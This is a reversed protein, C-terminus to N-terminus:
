LGHPNHDCAFIHVNDLVQVLDYQSFIEEPIDDIQPESVILLTPGSYDSNHEMLLYDGWHHFAGDAYVDKYVRDMDYVRLALGLTWVDQGWCYALQANNEKATEVIDEMQWSDNTNKLYTQDSKVNVVALSLILGAMVLIAFPTGPKLRDILEAVLVILALFAIILYREEFISSGYQVNFLSFIVITTLLVTLLFLPIEDEAFLDKRIKKVALGIGLVFVLALFLFFIVPFGRPSIIPVNADTAPLAGILKLFGQFVAGINTWLKELSTWTRTTDDTIIGLAHKGLWRGVVLIASCAYLFLSEKKILQKWDAKLFALLLEYMLCPVLLVILMFAGSSLGCLCCLLLSVICLPRFRNERHFCIIENFVLLALLARISYYSAGTLMNSIYSLDNIVAFDATLYPCVLLNLGVFTACLSLNLRTLLSWLVWLLLALLILNTIGYSLFINGTIGYLLAAPLTPTDLQANSTEIWLGEGSITKENWILTSKLYNWSSDFGMHDKMHFLNFYGLVAVQLVLILALLLVVAKQISSLKQLSLRM